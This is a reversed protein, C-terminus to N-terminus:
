QTPEPEGFLWALLRDAEAYHPIIADAGLEILMTRKLPHIGSQGAPRSAVGITAGGVAKMEVTEAYGDGFGIVMEHKEAIARIVDRKNFALADDGPAHVRDGFFPMLGLLEAEELVSPRDTGSVLYLTVGRQELLRLLQQSGPVEWATPPAKGAQLEQKRERTAELLRRTFEQLYEQPDGPKGGRAAVEEALRQMQFISPKGSLRLVQDEFYEHLPGLPEQVLQQDRLLDLALDAMIVSWGERILSLTGDFDFVAAQAPQRRLHPNIVEWTYPM